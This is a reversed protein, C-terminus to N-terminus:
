FRGRLRLGSFHRGVEPTVDIRAEIADPESGAFTPGFLLLIGTTFAAAGLIASASALGATNYVEPCQRIPVDSACNPEGHRQALVVGTAALGAGVGLASWGFLKTTGSRGGDRHPDIDIDPDDSGARLHVRMAFIPASDETILLTERIGAHTDHSLRLEYSGEDLQATGTGEGIPRDDIFIRTDEPITTIRVETRADDSEFEVDTTLPESPAQEDDVSLMGLHVAVSARFQEIVESHGCMECTGVENVLAEGTTLDFFDVSWDYLHSEIDFVIRVGIRADLAEGIDLLCDPEFCGRLDPDVTDIGEAPPIWQYVNSRAFIDALEEELADEVAAEMNDYDIELGVATHAAAPAAVFIVAIVAVFAAIMQRASM